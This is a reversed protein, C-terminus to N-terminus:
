QVNLTCEKPIIRILILSAIDSQDHYMLIFQDTMEWPPNTPEKSASHDSDVLIRPYM